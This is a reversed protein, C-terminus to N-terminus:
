TSKSMRTHHSEYGSQADRNDSLADFGHHSDNNQGSALSELYGENLRAPQEITKHMQKKKWNFNRGKRDHGGSVQSEDDFQITNSHNKWLREMERRSMESDLSNRHHHNRGYFKDDLGGHRPTVNSITHLQKRLNNNNRDVSRCLNRLEWAESIPNIGLFRLAESYNVMSNKEFQKQCRARDRTSLKVDLM